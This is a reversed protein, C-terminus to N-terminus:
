PLQPVSGNNKTLTTIDTVTEEYGDDHCVVLHLTVRM